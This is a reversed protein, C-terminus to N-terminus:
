AAFAYAPTMSALASQFRAGLTRVSTKADITAVLPYRSGNGDRISAFCGVYERQRLRDDGDTFELQAGTTSAARLRLDSTGRLM